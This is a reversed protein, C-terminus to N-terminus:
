AALVPPDPRADRRRAREAALDVVDRSPVPSSLPAGTPPSLVLRLQRGASAAVPSAPDLLAPGPEIPPDDDPPRRRPRPRTRRHALGLGLLSAATLGPVGVRPDLLLGVASSVVSVPGEPAAPASAAPPSHASRGDPPSARPVPRAPSMPQVAPPIATSVTALAESLAPPAGASGPQDGTGQPVAGSGTSWVPLLRSPGRRLLALPNLYETDRLLGWHLCHRGGCHGPRDELQGILAGAAVRTGVAVLPAVPEYTTRVSGHVVAVVSRGALLGAYSVVGDAASRVVQGPRAALDVGRHGPLWPAPPPAYERLIVHPPDIPWVGRHRWPPQSPESRAAWAVPASLSALGLVSLAASLGVWRAVLRRRHPTRGTRGAPSMRIEM